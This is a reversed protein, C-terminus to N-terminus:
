GRVTINVHIYSGLRLGISINLEFAFFSVVIVYNIIHVTFM